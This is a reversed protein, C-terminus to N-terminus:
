YIGQFNSHPNHGWQMFNVDPIQSNLFNSIIDNDGGSAANTPNNNNNNLDGGGGEGSPGAAVEENNNGNFGVRHLAPKKFMTAMIAVNSAAVVKGAVAGGFVDGQSGLLSIGFSKTITAFPHNPNPNFISSSSSSSSAAAAGGVGGGIVLPVHPPPPPGCLYTGTLSLLTFPGHLTFPLSHPHPHHLTVTAISGSASLVSIGVNRRRAFTVLAEVLDCGIAVEIVIPKLVKDSGQTIVIPPKPRNKSGPPRGRPKKQPPAVGRHHHHHHGTLSSPPIRLPYSWCGSAEGGGINPTNQDSSNDESTHSLLSLSIPSGYEAM